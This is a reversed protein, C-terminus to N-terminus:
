YERTGFYYAAGIAVVGLVLSVYTLMSTGGASALQTELDSIKTNLESLQSNATQLQGSMTTVADELADIRPELEETDPLDIVPIDVRKEGYVWWIHKLPDQHMSVNMPFFEGKFAQNFPSARGAAYVPIWPVEEGWIEQIQWYYDKREDQDSTMKAKEFLEDVAPDSYIAGNAWMAGKAIYATGMYEEIHSVDPGTFTGGWTYMEYNYDTFITSIGAQGSIQRIRVKIGVDEFNDIVIEQMPIPTTGAVYQIEVTEGTDPNVRYEEKADWEYGLGDLLANAADPDYNYQKANPNYAWGNPGGSPFLTYARLAMNSTEDRLIRDYDLAYSMAQRFEKISTYDSYEPSNMLMYSTVGWKLGGYMGPYLGATPEDRWRAMEELPAGYAIFDIEGAEFRAANTLSDPAFVFYIENLYPKNKQYYNENRVAKVYEGAKWEVFKFAGNGVYPHRTADNDLIDVDPDDFVHKPIISLLPLNARWSVDVFKFKFVFTYDDPASFSEVAADFIVGSPHNEAFVEYSYLIDETTLPEGDHWTANEYIHFTWTLLDSSSEWEYALEPEWIDDVGYRVLPEYFKNAMFMVIGSASITPNLHIPEQTTGIRLVGGYRPGEVDRWPDPPQNAPWDAQALASSAIYSVTM